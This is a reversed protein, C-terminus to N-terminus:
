PWIVVKEKPPASEIEGEDLEEIRTVTDFWNGEEDAMLMVNANPNCMELKQHSGQSEHRKGENNAVTTNTFARL